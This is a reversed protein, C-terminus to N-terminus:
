KLLQKIAKLKFQFRKARKKHYGIQQDLSIYSGHVKKEAELLDVNDDHLQAIIDNKSRLQKKLEAIDKIREDLSFNLATIQQKLRIIEEKDINM